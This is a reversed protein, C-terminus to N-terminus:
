ERRASSLAPLLLQSSGAGLGWGRGFGPGGQAAPPDRAASSASVPGALLFGAAPTSARMGPFVDAPQMTTSSLIFAGSGPLCAKEEQRTWGTDRGILDVTGVPLFSVTM